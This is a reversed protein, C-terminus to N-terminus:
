DHHLFELYDIEEFLIIDFINLIYKVSINFEELILEKFKTLQTNTGVM